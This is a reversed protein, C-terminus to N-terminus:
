FKYNLDVGFTRPQNTAVRNFIPVNASLAGTDSLLAVRNTLNDVFFMASWHDAEVGVRSNVLDYSPLTNRAYTIDQISDVYNNNVRVVLNMPQSLQLPYRYTASTNSTVEPVDLLRDGAVVGAEPLTTSNTAHTYGISETLTLGIVPIVAIELEAGYAKAKGANTTFKYGCPPAVQQQINSWDEYYIAGNVSVRSEAFRLKEGIEYSWVSDPGFQEPAPTCPPPIPSNPGGPRFGKAITGYITTNDDPIYALNFKPTVGSNQANAYLTDSTGNASVGSVSTASNSHYMFYRLGITSKLHNPMEYSTEGFLAYQDVNLLRHNDALNNTGFLATFGDYYSYVHSTAHFSSYYAGGLWQWANEGTSAIRLEESVQRSYDDESISGAGLGGDATAFPFDAPPGLFGGIYDQMAESIDQTQLQHRTWDSTASVIQFGDFDYKATFTYLNFNDEFPESVDFPQYHVDNGPPVDITNPGGQHISQYLIGADLSLADTPKVLLAARGGRLTEWNADSFRQAVPSAAVDGRQTSNNVELPFPNVVDRDIWGSINENTGVVRLAAIGPVLPLNLMANETHNFGGGDTDSFAGHADVAFRQLDPQNTVLKITGGMSGAGYLTGQPGRLIEVRNLDFLGPD